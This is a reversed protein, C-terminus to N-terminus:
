CVTYVVLIESCYYLKELTIFATGALAKEYHKGMAVFNKLSPNFQDLIGQLCM